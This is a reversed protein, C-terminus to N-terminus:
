VGTGGLLDTLNFGGLSVDALDDPRTTELVTIVNLAANVSDIQDTTLGATGSADRVTLIATLTATDVSDAISAVVAAAAFILSDARAEALAEPDTLITEIATLDVTSDFAAFAQAVLTDIDAGEATALIALDALTDIDVTATTAINLIATQDEVSLAAIADTSCM